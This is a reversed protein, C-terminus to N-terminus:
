PEVGTEKTLELFVDELAAKHPTLEHLVAGIQWAIAGIDAPALGSVQVTTEDVRTVTGGAETVARSIAGAQPSSVKVTQEATLDGITTQTVLRGRNIVIVDDALPSM